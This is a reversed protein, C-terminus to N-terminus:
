SKTARLFVSELKVGIPIKGREGAMAAVQAKRDGTLVGKV